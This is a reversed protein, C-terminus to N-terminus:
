LKKQEKEKMRQGELKGEINIQEKINNRPKKKEELALFPFNALVKALLLYRIKKEIKGYNNRLTHQKYNQM